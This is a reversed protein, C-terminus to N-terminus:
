DRNKVTRLVNKNPECDDVRVYNYAAAYEFYYQANVTADVQADHIVVEGNEIEWVVDHGGGMSWYLALHGRAGEEYKDLLEKEFDEAAEKRNYNLQKTESVKAGDYWSAVDHITYGEYLSIPNAEVDYGRKRLDYVATCFSCNMNYGYNKEDYKPNVADQHEENTMKKDIKDLEEFSDPSDVEIKLATLAPMVVSFIAQGFGSKLLKPIFEKAKQKAADSAASNVKKNLINEAAEKGKLYSQYAKDSYFYRWTDGKVPVKAIYKHIKQKVKEITKSFSETKKKIFKTKVNNLKNSVSTPLASSKKKLSTIKSKVDKKLSAVDYYYKWKGKVKERKIYKWHMLTDSYVNNKKHKSEYVIKM